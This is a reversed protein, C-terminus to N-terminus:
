GLLPDIALVYCSFVESEEVEALNHADINLRYVLVMVLLVLSRRSLLSFRSCHCFTCWTGEFVSTLLTARRMM